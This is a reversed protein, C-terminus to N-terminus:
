NNPDTPQNFLHRLVETAGYVGGGPAKAHAHKTHHRQAHEANSHWEHIFTLVRSAIDRDFEYKQPMKSKM